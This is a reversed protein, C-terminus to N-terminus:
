QKAPASGVTGSARPSAGMTGKLDIGLANAYAGYYAAAKASDGGFEADKLYCRYLIYDRLPNAFEDPMGINGTVNSFTQGATPQTVDVPYACYIVELSAGSAPAPPYVYFSRPDREDYDYHIVTVASTMTHWNPNTNDLIKRSFVRVAPGNTNRPIDMLKSCDSPLTQYTGAVLAMSAKKKLADPRYILVDRQGDNLHRVLEDIPWRLSATDNLIETVARLVNQAAIAM